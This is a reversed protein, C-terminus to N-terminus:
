VSYLLNNSQVCYIYCSFLCGLLAVAINAVLVGCAAVALSCVTQFVSRKTASMSRFWYSRLLHGYQQAKPAKMFYHPFIQQGAPKMNYRIRRKEDDADVIVMIAM